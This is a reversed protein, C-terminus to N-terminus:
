WVPLPPQIFISIEAVGAEVVGVPAGSGPTRATSRTPPRPAPEMFSRLRAYYSLYIYRNVSLRMSSSRSREHTGTRRKKDALRRGQARSHMEKMCAEDLRCM